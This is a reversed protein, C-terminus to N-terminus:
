LEDKNHKGKYDKNEITVQLCREQEVLYDKAEWAQSGEKFMFIARNDDILYREAQIHNNWLSTQWLKTIDETEQKSPNGNVTVFSMLTKGKKSAKLINEPNSPDLQSMDIPEAPRLHEPLEDPELPEEDEEWQDLLRELDADNYDRIDKKAWAPKEEDKFKKAEVLLGVSVILLTILLYKHM